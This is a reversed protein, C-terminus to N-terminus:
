IWLPQPSLARRGLSSCCAQPCSVAFGRGLVESRGPETPGCVPLSIGCAALSFASKPQSTPLYCPPGHVCLDVPLSASPAELRASSEVSGGTTEGSSTRINFHVLHVLPLPSLYTSGPHTSSPAPHSSPDTHTQMGQLDPVNLGALM